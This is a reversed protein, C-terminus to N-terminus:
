RLEKPSGIAKGLSCVRETKERWCLAVFSGKYQIQSSSSANILTITKCKPYNGMTCEDKYPSGIFELALANMNWLVKTQKNINEEKLLMAKDLDICGSCQEHSDSWRLEPSDSLKRLSELVEEERQTIIQEKGGTNKLSLYFIVVIAMFIVLAVLVFAMEQIKLQAKSYQVRYSIM